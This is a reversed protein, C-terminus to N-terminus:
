RPDGHVRPFKMQEILSAYRPDSAVDRWLFRRAQLVYAMTPSRLEWGRDLEQFMADYHRMSYHIDAIAFPDVYSTRSKAQLRALTADAREHRGARMEIGALWAQVLPSGDQSGLLEDARRVFGMSLEHAGALAAAMGLKINGWIWNPNLDIAKHFEAAAEDLRGIALLEYGLEHTANVSLPDLAQARRAEELGEEFRGTLSLLSAYERHAIDSGPELAIAKRFDEEAGLWDYEFYMRVQGSLVCAESLQDDLALARALAARAKSVTEERDRSSLWTQLVYSEGLGAYASAFTPAREIARRFMEQARAPGDDTSSLLYRGRLYLEYAEPDGRRGRVAAAVEARAQESEESDTGEALLTRRLEKVVAQAIDDQVAFVDDLMRDYTESWLHQGDAVKVLQVSIRVRNGAKRVSGDLVTAVNLARGVEAILVDKGKFYFSSARASVRIGKIKLLVNLLEDALGDSFYEDEVSQSRNVFPLVAISAVSEPAPIESAGGERIQRLARLENSVDLATQVRERPNKALCRSVIRDLDGPLEARVRALPEPTDRLISSSVDAASAGTFPRRGTALEYLMIGLSFLDSRADVVEARLQEPAMYPLTGLVQGETSLPSEATAGLTEGHSPGDDGAVKALGFDLVKVRGERTVMVNGPKLDRHVVGHEHAASLADALPISLALIRALPLGGPVVLSSLTQGVVLEMTLFRIGGEDEVSYLTVINPHNLGAVTRAEREFRALRDSSSAVNTPLVKVAVERGLRLDKARYVEGMGGAGLPGLIEYTGLHTGPTLAM